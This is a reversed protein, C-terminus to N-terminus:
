GPCRINQSSITGGGVLYDDQYYVVAQGPTVARQPTEFLVHVKGDEMPTITAPVPQANYRIQAQAEMPEELKEILVFNNDESTLESSFLAEQPGIIVANRQPDIGVVYVKEGLAIGLGRRQGITYFPIGKHQGIVRGQTDLLPGPKFKEGTWETIFDHYNDHVFCIEQSEPKDAVPLNKQAAILRVESKTYEGLPMLIHAAQRQTINYLAYAQDKRRDKARRMIYRGRRSDFFLLAYHGTAIFGAGLLLAKELLSDFKIYRNCAICPNPTRGRLYENCFYDIVKEAFLPQFNMVYHPINLRDAVLRADEVAALSCCGVYEGGVETVAPDWIQMTVGIVEYGAEVLLAATVSSDVGGSMAVIVKM